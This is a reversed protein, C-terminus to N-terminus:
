LRRKLFSDHAKRVTEDTNGGGVHFAVNVWSMCSIYRYKIIQRIFSDDINIIFDLIGKRKELIEILKGAIIDQIEAINAALDATKDTCYGPASRILKWNPSQLAMDYEIEKLQKKWMDVEKNLYYIQKLEKKTM